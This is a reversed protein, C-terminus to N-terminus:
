PFNFFILLFSQRLMYVLDTWKRSYLFVKELFDPIFVSRREPEMAGLAWIFVVPGVLEPKTEKQLESVVKLFGSRQLTM